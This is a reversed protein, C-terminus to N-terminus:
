DQTGIEVWRRKDAGETQSVIGPEPMQCCRYGLAPQLSKSWVTRLRNVRGRRAKSVMIFAAAWVKGQSGTGGSGGQHKGTHGQMSSRAGEEQSGHSCVTKENATTEQDTPM